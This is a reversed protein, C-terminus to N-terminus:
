GCEAGVQYQASTARRWLLVHDEIGATTKHQATLTLQTGDDSFRFFRTQDKLLMPPHSTSIVRHTVTQATEDIDWPGYYTVIERLRAAAEADTGSAFVPAHPTLKTAHKNGVTLVVCMHGDGSYMITGIADEGMPYGKEGTVKNEWYWAGDFLHWTGVFRSRGTKSFKKWWLAIAMAAVTASVAAAAASSHMADPSTPARAGPCAQFGDM